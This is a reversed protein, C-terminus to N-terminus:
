SYIIYLSSTAILCLRGNRNTLFSFCYVLLFFFVFISHVTFEIKLESSLWLLKFSSFFFCCVFWYFSFARLTCSDYVPLCCRYEYRYISIKANMTWHEVRSFNLLIYVIAQTGFRSNLVPMIKKVYQASPPGMSTITHTCTLSYFNYRINKQM